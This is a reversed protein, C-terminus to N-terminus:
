KKEGTGYAGLVYLVRLALSESRRQRFLKMRAAYRARTLLCKGDRFFRLMEAREEKTLDEGHLRCFYRMQRAIRRTEGGLARRIRTVTWSLIGKGFGLENNRHQRYLTRPTDDFVIKGYVSALNTLWMDHAYIEGLDAKAADALLMDFLARNFFQNHGHAINQVITNYFPMGRLDQQTAGGTPHLEEDALASRCAWLVPVTKGDPSANEEQALAAAAADIKGSLWVDDQDCFAYYDFRFGRKEEEERVIQLLSLYSRVYGTNEGERLIIETGGEPDEIFGRVIRVTDDESGDDRIFLAVACRAEQKLISGIQAAIFEAGNHSSLMVAMRLSAGTTMREKGKM